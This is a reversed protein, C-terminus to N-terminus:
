DAQGPHLDIREISFAKDNPQTDPQRARSNPAFGPSQLQYALSPRGSNVDAGGVCFRRSVNVDGM